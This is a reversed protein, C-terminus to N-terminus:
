LRQILYVFVPLRSRSKIEYFRPLLERRKPNDQMPSLYVTGKAHSSGKAESLLEALSRDHEGSLQEGLLFNGSIEINTHLSNMHQMKRFAELVTSADVPKGILELTSQDVSEFGINIHTYFPLRSLQEFLSDEAKLLSDISGFLFLMPTGVQPKGFGFAASAEEAAFCILEAGSALADHNGLFLAHYNEMNRGYFSKLQRIQESINEKSRTQFKRATKVCCFKCHYLCGDAIMLPIVEYDVHRTDPPLVSVQGGIITHLQNAREHLVNDNNLMIREVLEGARSHLGTNKGAMYLDAYLQSWASFANMIVPNAFYNVEWVSNSPYPLCPLYYEGLWSIIGRDGSQDGVTYYMWDNGDTRKLEEAPHPWHPSLGRITKIEGNLNFRFEFDQTRIESYKGHRLPFRDKRLNPSSQKEVVISFPFGHLGSHLM